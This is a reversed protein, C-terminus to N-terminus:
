SVVARECRWPPFLEEFSAGEKSKEQTIWSDNGADRDGCEPVMDPRDEWFAKNAALSEM